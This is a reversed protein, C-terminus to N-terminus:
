QIKMYPRLLAALQPIKLDGLGSRRGTVTIRNVPDAVSGPGSAPGLFKVFINYSHGGNDFTNAVVKVVKLRMGKPYHTPRIYGNNDNFIEAYAFRYPLRLQQFNSESMLGNQEVFNTAWNSNSNIDISQTLEFVTGVPLGAVSKAKRDQWEQAPGLANMEALDAAQQANVWDSLGFSCSVAYDFALQNPVDRFSATSRADPFRHGTDYNEYSVGVTQTQNVGLPAQISIRAKNHGDFIAQISLGFEANNFEYHNLSTRVMPAYLNSGNDEWSQCEGPGSGQIYFCGHVMRLQAVRVHCDTNEMSGAAFAVPAFAFSSLLAVRSVFTPLSSKM